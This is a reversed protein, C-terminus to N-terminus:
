RDFSVELAKVSFGADLLAQFMGSPLNDLVFEELAWGSRDDPVDMTKKITIDIWTDITETM